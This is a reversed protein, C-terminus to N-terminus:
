ERVAFINTYGRQLDDREVIKPSDIPVLRKENERIEFLRFNHSWLFILMEKPDDAAARLADPFFEIAMKMPRKHALLGDMGQLAKLEGGQIDMKIFDIPHPYWDSDVAIGTVKIKPRDYADFPFQTDDGSNVPSLTLYIDSDELEKSTVLYPNTYIKEGYPQANIELFAFNLPNPEYADVSAGVSAMAASYYGIHAGIDLAYSHENLVSQVLQTQFPEYCLNQALDLSDDPDLLFDRGFLKIQRYRM